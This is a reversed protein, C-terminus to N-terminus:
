YCWCLIDFGWCPRYVSKQRNEDHKNPLNNAMRKDIFPSHKSGGTANRSWVGNGKQCQGDMWGARQVEQSAQYLICGRVEQSAAQISLYWLVKYAHMRRQQLIESAEQDQLFATMERGGEEDVSSRSSVAGTRWLVQQPTRSCEAVLSNFMTRGKLFFSPAYDLLTSRTGQAMAPPACPLRCDQRGCNWRM